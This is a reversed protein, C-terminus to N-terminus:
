FNEIQSVISIEFIPLNRLQEKMRYEEDSAIKGIRMM